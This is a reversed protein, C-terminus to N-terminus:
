PKHGYIQSRWYNMSLFEHKRKFINQNRMPLLHEEFDSEILEIRDSIIIGGGAFDSFFKELHRAHFMIPVTDLYMAEWTRHCDLGHGEPSFVFKHTALQHLYHEYDHGNQGYEVTCWPMKSFWDLVPMRARPNTHPNINLYVLKDKPMRKAKVDFLMKAKDYPFCYKNELGIPLSVILPDMIEVNQAYWAEVNGPVVKVNFGNPENLVEPRESLRWDSNHTMLVIPSDFKEAFNILDQTNHTHAYAVPLRESAESMDSQCVVTNGPGVIFDALAQLKEGSVFDEYNM